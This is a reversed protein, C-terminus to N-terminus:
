NKILDVLPNTNTKIVGADILLDGAIVGVILIVLLLLLLKRTNRRRKVQGIPRTYKGEAVLKEVMAQHVKEEQSQQHQKKKEAQSPDLDQNESPLEQKDEDIAQQDDKKGEETDETLEPESEKKPEQTNDEEDRTVPPKITKAQNSVLAQAESKKVYSVELDSVTEEARRLTPDKVISRNTVIIPRSTTDPSRKGPKSIDFTKKKGSSNAM